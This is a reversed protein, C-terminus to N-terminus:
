AVRRDLAKHITQNKRLASGLVREGFSNPAVLFDFLVQGQQGMRDLRNVVQENVGSVWDPEAAIGRQCLHQLGDTGIGVALIQGILLRRGPQGFEDVIKQRRSPPTSGDIRLPNFRALDAELMDMVQTHYAVLFVKEEGGDLVMETYDAALPAVAIGMMRRVTAIEGLIAADIGELSEPDIQLLSEAKLAAKVAGTEEVHVIDLLPLKLQPQVDRKLRRVMFNSRLRAQLEGHRGTREDIYIRGDETERTVSPNFRKQFHAESMFDIAEFCLGRAATYAERPRNPLPTGTLSVVAGSRSALSSAVPDDGGGFVTRTRLADVTKLYHGEDLILLDYTGKALARWIPATRALDYSVVTWAADPHVGHRGHLIPYVTFPWKMTTWTRIRNVWQLRINAPCLVLVRKAQMENAICIAQMTKGLGPQDGILTNRRQMAYSVGAKQFPALEQDAPCAINANSTTAWSTEIGQQLELLQGAAADSAYQWFAIAAYPERTFLVSVGPSSLPGSRDLGHERMLELPDHESHPVRLTFAGTKAVYDLQM